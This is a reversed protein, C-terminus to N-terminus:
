RTLPLLYTDLKRHFVKGKGVKAEDINEQAQDANGIIEKNKDKAVATRNRDRRVRGKMEVIPM